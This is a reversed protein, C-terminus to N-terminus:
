PKMRELRDKLEKRAHFLRSKVTGIPIDLVIAIEDVRMDEVYFLSLLVRRDRTLMELARRVGDTQDSACFDSALQDPNLNEAEDSAVDDLRRQRQRKRVWDAAKHTVIQFIWGRFRAPDDLRRIGRVVALWAEQVIEPASDRDGCLRLAHALLRPQWRSILTEFAREDGAQAELVLLEDHITRTRGTM